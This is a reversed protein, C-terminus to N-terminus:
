GPAQRVMCSPRGGKRHTKQVRSALYIFYFLIFLVNFSISPCLLRHPHGRVAKHWRMAEQGKGEDYCQCLVEVYPQLEELEATTTSLDLKLADLMKVM